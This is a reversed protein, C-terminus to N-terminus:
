EESQGALRAALHTVNGAGACLVVDESRAERNVTELAELWNACFVVATGDRALAEAFRRGAEVPDGREERAAFVPVVLVLDARRLVKRFRGSFASLRRQQHPEFVTIVRRGPFREGVAKLTANLETPHHAYDDIIVPGRSSLVEFRRRLGRFRTFCSAAHTAAALGCYEAILAFAATANLVNHSGPLGSKIEISEGHPGRLQIYRMGGRVACRLPRWAGGPGFTVLRVGDPVYGALEKELAAPLVVLGPQKVRGVFTGFAELLARRTAFCDVHEKEVNTIICCRPNLNLFSRDYECAELAMPDGPAANSEFGAMGPAPDAGVLFGAQMGACRLLYAVMATTTSKGHTGAVALVERSRCYVALAEAYKLCPIGRERAAALEPNSAPVAASYVICRVDSAVNLERHDQYCEVGASRLSEFVEGGASDSGSVSWGNSALLRALGRMGYGAVGVMHIHSGAPALKYFAEAGHRQVSRGPARNRHQTDGAFRPAGVKLDGV